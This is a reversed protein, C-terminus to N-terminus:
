NSQNSKFWLKRREFYLGGVILALMLASSGLAINSGTKVVQPEFKFEIKHHGAPVYMARLVYDVRFHPVLKGDLYANWGDAYYMESFVALGQNANNSVYSLHNPLYKTLKISALSDKVFEQEKINLNTFDNKNVAAINKTDLKNLVRMEENATSVLHLKQVFWANGNAM